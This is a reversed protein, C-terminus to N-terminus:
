DKLYASRDPPTLGQSALLLDALAYYVRLSDKTVSEGKPPFSENPAYGGWRLPSDLNLAM